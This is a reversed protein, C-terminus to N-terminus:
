EDGSLVVGRHFDGLLGGAARVQAEIEFEDGIGDRRRGRRLLKVEAGEIPAVSERPAIRGENKFLGVREETGPRSGGGGAWIQYRGIGRDGCSKVPEFSSLKESLM